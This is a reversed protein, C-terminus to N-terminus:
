RVGIGPDPREALAEPRFRFIKAPRGPTQRRHGTEEVIGTDEVLRRFNPGHLPRGALAEVTRQLESLTLEPPLLEVVIPRYAIKGRMRGIATALIRRHDLMMEAGSWPLDS